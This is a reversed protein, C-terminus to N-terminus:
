QVPGAERAKRGIRKDFWVNLLTWVLIDTIFVLTNDMRHAALLNLVSFCASMLLITVMASRPTFGMALFKHHIHTKDPLFPNKGNRVRRLVVRVVDLSPILLVSFSVLVPSGAIEDPTSGTYMCYKVTFLSLLYGLLLSGTDGMFIKRGRAANGFVNYSFFPILVGISVFAVLAYVWWGSHIFVGGFVALAVMSLGSALGDIGDILNIANTIFVVLVLTLPIGIWPTVAYIGFLGYFNNIYLGSLPLMLAALLQVVFKKRYRVGILDDAVGVIYLLTLGSTFLLLESTMGPLFLSDPSGGLLLRLAIFLCVCFLIVPFFSVGGLRPVLNRHVKRADPVDFLRKRFSVLLINPIIIQGLVVATALAAVILGLNQMLIANM